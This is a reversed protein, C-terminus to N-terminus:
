SVAANQYNARYQFEEIAAALPTKGALARVSLESIFSLVPFILAMVFIVVLCVKVSTKSYALPDQAVDNPNERRHIPLLPQSQSQM